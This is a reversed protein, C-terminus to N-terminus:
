FRIGIFFRRLNHHNDARACINGTDHPGDDDGASPTSRSPSACRQREDPGVYVTVSGNATHGYLDTATVTIVHTGLDNATPKWVFSGSSSIDGSTVTTLSASQGAAYPTFSDSISFTSVNLGSPFAQFSVTAGLAVSSNPEPATVTLSPGQIVQITTTAGANHGLSTLPM